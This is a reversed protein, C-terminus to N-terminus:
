GVFYGALDSILQVQGAANRVRVRGDTGVKVVALNARTEGGALNLNSVTPLRGANAPYARVNTTATVGTGTVNLVAATADAPVGRTGAVLLDVFGAATTAIPAAGVGSRTDLFRTPAVPVFRGTSGASYYGAIDALLQVRGQANRLRVKGGAGVPVTVLNAATQGPGVNLNSVTPFGSGSAPTPYVRVNTDATVSTATVNLVVARADTPVSVTRGDSTPLSGTVQLDLTGAPGVSAAPAGVNNPAPRTDLVRGPDVATFGSGGTGTPVYYGAVDAVLHVSGAANRLRVSGGSGLTATVLNPVVQGPGTNLNSSRPVANDAPTPYVRVDTAATPAVATVNLVVATASAPIAGQETVLGHVRLDVTGGAGVRAAPAGVNNPAPRTDLVRKPTVPVYESPAGASVAAPAPGQLHPQTEDGATRLLRGARVGARDVAWLDGPPLDVGSSYGFVDYVISQGDPSWAPYEAVSARTPDPQTVSLLRQGGGAAPVTAILATDQARTRDADRGTITAYAVTSGDPSWAPMLGTVGLSTRGATSAPDSSIVTLPGSDAGPALAAFVIRSGDPSWDATYGDSAQGYPVAAGGAAPVVHLATRIALPDRSGLPTTIRTFLVRDGTPSWAAALDVSEATASSPPETLRRFGTGDRGVVAIGESGSASGRDTSLVVRSGDPSLEPDDYTWENAADEGLLTVSRQTELNRLVVTYLGDNDSDATFVVENAVSSAWAPVTLALLALLGVLAAGVAGRRRGATCPLTM